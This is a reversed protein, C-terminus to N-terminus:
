RQRPTGLYARMLRDVLEAVENPARAEGALADYTEFGTLAVLIDIAEAREGPRPRGQDAALRELITTAVQRRRADRGKMVNGSEPDLAGLARLRRIVVRDSAWFRVFVAIFQSLARDPDPGAIVQPLDRLCGSYALEDSLAELLGAKSGFQNYVTVRAVDAAQAVAPVTFDAWGTSTLLNRAALLIRERTKHVEQQRKTMDYKRSAV